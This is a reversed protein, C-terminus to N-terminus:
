KQCATLVIRVHDAPGVVTRDKVSVSPALVGLFGTRSGFRIGDDGGPRM